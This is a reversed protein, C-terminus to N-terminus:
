KKKSKTAKTKKTPKDIGKDVAMNVIDTWSLTFWKGTQESQVVPSNDNGMLAMEYTGDEGNAKGVHVRLFLTKAAHIKGKTHEM